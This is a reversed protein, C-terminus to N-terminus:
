SQSSYLELFAQQIAISEFLVNRRILHPKFAMFGIFNPM